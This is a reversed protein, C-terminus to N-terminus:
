LMSLIWAILQATNYLSYLTGSSGDRSAAPNNEKLWSKEGERGKLVEPLPSHLILLPTLLMVDKESSCKSSRTKWPLELFFFFLSTEFPCLTTIVIDRLNRKCLPFLPSHCLSRIWSSSFNREVNLCTKGWARTWPVTFFFIRNSPM